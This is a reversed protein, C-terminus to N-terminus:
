LPGGQKLLNELRSAELDTQVLSLDVPYFSKVKDVGPIRPSTKVLKDYTALSEDPFTVGMRMAAQKIGRMIMHVVVFPEIMQELLRTCLDFFFYSESGERSSALSPMIEFTVHLLPATFGQAIPM